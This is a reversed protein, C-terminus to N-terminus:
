NCGREAEVSMQLIVGRHGGHVESRLKEDSAAEEWHKQVGAIRVIVGECREGSFEQLCADRERGERSFDEVKLGLGWSPRM